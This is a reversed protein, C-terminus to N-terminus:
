AARINDIDAEIVLSVERQRGSLWDNHKEDLYRAFYAAHLDHIRTAEDPTTELRAEAYQRLLEHIHYRRTPELTLLSKDVLDSLVRASVGAVAEVAERRFGGSFVSLANFVSREEDTLRWTQEFVQLPLYVIGRSDICNEAAGKQRDSFVSITQYRM